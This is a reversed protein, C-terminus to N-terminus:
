EEDPADLHPRHKRIWEEVDSKRWVRGMILTAIPDPFGKSNIIVDVRQRSIDGGLMLRIEAAGVLDV